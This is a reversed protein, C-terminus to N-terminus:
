ISKIDKRWNHITCYTYYVMFKYIVFRSHARIDAVVINVADLAEDDDHNDMWSLNSSKSWFYTIRFDSEVKIVKKGKHFVLTM